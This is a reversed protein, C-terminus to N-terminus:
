GRREELYLSINTQDIDADSVGLGKTLESLYALRAISKAEVLGKYNRWRVNM